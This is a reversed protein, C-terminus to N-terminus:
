LLLVIKYNMFGVFYNVIYEYSKWAQWSCSFFFSFFFYTDKLFINKFYMLYGM